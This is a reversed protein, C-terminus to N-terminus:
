FCMHGRPCNPKRRFERVEKLIERSFWYPSGVAWDKGDPTRAHYVSDRYTKNKTEQVQRPDLDHEAEHGFTAVMQDEVSDGEATPRYMGEYITITAEAYVENGNADKVIDAEGDFKGNEFKLAGKSGDPRTGHPQHRGGAVGQPDKDGFAFNIMTKHANLKNFQSLAKSSGSGNILGVLRILDKSANKSTIVLQGDREEIEVRKGDTGKFEEGHPDIFRLPNNRTYVYLNISQPDAMREKTMMIRDVSTFRGYGYGYYRAQAFDLDIENDREYGTFQKRVDDATYGLGQTRGGTGAIEEGFPHYDHRATVSGNQDTNIRPSGLHDNTLYSIQPNATEVITSYEAVLKGAADYVFVTVEGTAPVVKKM